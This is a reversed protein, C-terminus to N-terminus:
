LQDDTPPIPKSIVNKAPQNAGKAAMFGNILDQVEPNKLLTAIDVKKDEKSRNILKEVNEKAFSSKDMFGDVAKGLSLAKSFTNFFSGDGGVIEINTKSLAAALVDAQERAIEKNADISAMAQEFEKELRMRFEEHSRATDSLHDMSKFKDTLGDAEAKLRQRIVEAQASGLQGEGRAQAALKEELVKADALGLKEKANAQQEEGRAQAALKEELIKAEAFGQQQEAKAKAEMVQAETLGKEKLGRAEALLKEATINALVLGEKEEAEATAQRVRAEALGLAAHEAEVGEALRKKAEAQKASAELEAQAMTSIEEARHKASAEDAEAKKVQRVLSEEAEAQANIVTVQRMREAESIERVEKIREEEQAVTKEVAVRERIVNSINKREEELAKEKEIRQLEVERERAVIELERARSVREEEIAVARTRNQQAVEVERMRNEERIEIEQQTQIRAQESKLREEEQVRLTEAQERARINDIERKQRAEADAQQRELALSAERTEVNKKQIALEQDREKQNTEINHIATIETIKRIGESDFINNPDLASKPTQELYDIAVDELAYGNLDKGIVDVIRDRFDQRNEFLTALDLQKGVTKLAESFKASFLASVAQHDSARDVGIAKAVKLVDETTENVRLYFAVTIDARLNDHCILGDKGRRDVELTLLSIRMFEKKYIVPYVLAGTFHVKPQSSMDNVILATGQPVKIYFAKFLGFFGLIVLIIGGIITLFPMLAALDM